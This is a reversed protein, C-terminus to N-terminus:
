LWVVLGLCVFFARPTEAYGDVAIPALESMAQQLLPGAAQRLAGSVGGGLHLHTNSANVAMDAEIETLGVPFIQIGVHGQRCYKPARLGHELAIRVVADTRAPSQCLGAYSRSESYLSADASCGRDAFPSCALGAM